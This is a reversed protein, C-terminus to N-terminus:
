QINYITYVDIYKMSPALQNMLGDVQRVDKVTGHPGPFKTPDTKLFIIYLIMPLQYYTYPARSEMGSRAISSETEM